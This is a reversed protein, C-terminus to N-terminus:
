CLIMTFICNYNKEAYEKENRVVWLFREIAMFSLSSNANEPRLLMIHYNKLARYQETQIYIFISVKYKAILSPSPCPPRAHQSEHPRLFDSVVSCSFQVSSFQFSALNPNKLGLYNPIQILNHSLCIQINEMYTTIEEIKALVRM